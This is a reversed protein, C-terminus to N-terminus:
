SPPRYRVSLAVRLNAELRSAQRQLEHAEPALDGNAELRLALQGAKFKASVATVPSPHRRNIARAVGLLTALITARRSDDATILARYPSLDPTGEDAWRVIGGLLVIERHNYGRLDASHVLYEAHRDRNYFDIHMGITALHAAACLIERDGAGLGLPTAVADFLMAAADIVPRSTQDSVGNARAVGAISAARVDAILPNAPRLEEWALGERLGQGAVTLTRAGLLGMVEDIVVAAAPLIDIRNWGVGPIKRREDPTRAVLAQALRHVEERTLVLGHLRRLPYRRRIRTIRALNRVAGGTGFLEGGAPEVQIAGRVAKRLARVDRASPPDSSFYRERAYIAGLPASQVSALDRAEVRMVELSGGGIDLVYGDTLDISNAVGLFAARAEEAGALVRLDIGFEARARAIFEAANPARRLAETGAVVMHDPRYSRALETMVRLADMGRQMGEPTLNGGAQGEGLRADFREEDIVEFASSTLERCVLLRVSNSGMDIVAVTRGCALGGMDDAM